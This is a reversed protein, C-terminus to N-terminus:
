ATPRHLRWALLPLKPAIGIRPLCHLESSQTVFGVETSVAARYTKRAEEVVVRNHSGNPYCFYEIPRGLKEELLKRSASIEFSLEEPKLGPLIPHTVTHSGITIFASDLSRIENWDMLDYKNKQDLTPRFGSSLSLLDTELEHRAKLSLQKMWGVFQETNRAEPNWRKLFANREEGLFALRARVEHTWLWRSNEILGPCVFFTAPIKMRRLIPYAKTFNNRLGDDFTLVMQDKLSKGRALRNVFEEMGIISFNKSLFNLNTDFNEESYDDDGVGHFKLVRGAAIANARWVSAGTGYAAAHIIKSFFPKIKM